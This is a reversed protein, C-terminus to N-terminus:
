PRGEAGAPKRLVFLITSVPNLSVPEDPSQKKGQLRVANAVRSGRPASAVFGSMQADNQVVTAIGFVEEADGEFKAAVELRTLVDQCPADLTLDFFITPFEETREYIENIANDLRAARGQVFLLDVEGAADVSVKANSSEDTGSKAVLSGAELSKKLEADALIPREYAIGYENLIQSFARNHWAEESITIDVIMLMKFSDSLDSGVAAMSKLEEMEAKPLSPPAITEANSAITNSNIASPKVTNNAPGSGKEVAELKTDLTNTSPKSNALASETPTITTPLSNSPPTEQSPQSVTPSDNQALNQATGVNATDPRNSWWVIGSILMVSAAAAFAWRVFTKRGFGRTVVSVSETTPFAASEVAAVILSDASKDRSKALQIPHDAPLQLREAELKASALVKEAFNSPLRYRASNSLTNRAQQLVRLRRAVSSDRQLLEELERSEHAELEGDLFGSILEDLKDETM